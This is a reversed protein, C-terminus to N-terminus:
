TSSARRAGAALQSGQGHRPEREPHLHRALRGREYKPNTRMSMSYRNIPNAVFFMNEDYMTLSWFGKVPPLQGKPFRMMYKHEGATAERAPRAEALDPLGRGAAPQRRPRHRHRARAPHLEHRLHGAKTTYGWGNVRTMDGDRTSSTCWSAATALGRAPAQGVRQRRMAPRLGQRARPRHAAFRELAPADAAAPPNRKMLDALLTFYEAATM